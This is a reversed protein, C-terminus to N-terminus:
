ACAVKHVIRLVKSGGVFVIDLRSYSERPIRERISLRCNASAISYEGALNVTLNDVYDVFQRAKVIRAADEDHQRSGVCRQRGRNINGSRDGDKLAQPSLSHESRPDDGRSVYSLEPESRPRIRRQLHPESTLGVVLIGIGLLRAKSYLAIDACTESNFDAIQETAACVQGAIAVDIRKLPGTRETRNGALRSENPKRGRSLRSGP